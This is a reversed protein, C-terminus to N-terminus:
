IVNIIRGNFFPLSSVNGSHKIGYNLSMEDVIFEVMCNSSITYQNNSDTHKDSKIDCLIVDFTNGNDLVITHKDGVQGYYTGMAVCYANDIKYLGNEDKVANALLQGQRSSKSIASKPMWSKFFNANLPAPSTSKASKKTNLAQKLSNIEKDKDSITKDKEEVELVREMLESKTENLENEQDKLQREITEIRSEYALENLEQSQKASYLKVCRVALFAMISLSLIVALWEFWTKSIYDKVEPNLIKIKSMKQKLKIM